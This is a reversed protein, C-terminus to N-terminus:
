DQFICSSVSVAFSKSLALPIDAIDRIAKGYLFLYPLLQYLYCVSLDRAQLLSGDPGQFATASAARGSVWSMKGLSLHRIPNMEYWEPVPFSSIRKRTHHHAWRTYSSPPCAGLPWMKPMNLKQGTSLFHCLSSPLLFGEWRVLNHQIASSSGGVLECLSVGLLVSIQFFDPAPKLIAMGGSRNLDAAQRLDTALTPHGIFALSSYWWALIWPQTFSHSVSMPLDYPLSCSYASSTEWLALQKSLFGYWNRLINNWLSWSNTQKNAKLLFYGHAGFGRVLGTLSLFWLHYSLKLM